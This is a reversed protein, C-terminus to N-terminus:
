TSSAGWAACAAPLESYLIHEVLTVKRCPDVLVTVSHLYKTAPHPRLALAPGRRDGFGPQSCHWDYFLFVPPRVPSPIGAPYSYVPACACTCVHVCLWLLVGFRCCCSVSFCLMYLFMYLFCTCFAHVCAHVLWPFCTCLCVCFAHVFAHVLFFCTRLGLCGHVCFHLCWPICTCICALM